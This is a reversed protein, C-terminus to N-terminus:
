SALQMLEERLHSMKAQLRALLQEQRAMDHENLYDMAMEVKGIEILLDHHMYGPAIENQFDM